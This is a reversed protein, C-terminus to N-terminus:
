VQLQITITCTHTKLTLVSTFIKFLLRKGINRKNLSGAVVFGYGWLFIEKTASKWAMQGFIFEDTQPFEKWFYDRKVVTKGLFNPFLSLVRPRSYLFPFIQNEVMNGIESYFSFCDPFNNSTSSQCKKNM